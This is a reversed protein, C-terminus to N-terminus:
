FTYHIVEDPDFKNIKEIDTKDEKTIDLKSWNADALLKIKPTPIVQSEQVLVLYKYEGIVEINPDIIKVYRNPTIFASELFRKDSIKVVISDSVDMFHFEQDEIGSLIKGRIEISSKSRVKETAKFVDEITEFVNKGKAM